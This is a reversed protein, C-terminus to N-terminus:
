TRVRVLIAARNGLHVMCTCKTGCTGKPFNVNGYLNFLFLRFNRM